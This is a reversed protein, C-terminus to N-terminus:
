QIGGVSKPDFFEKQYPIAKSVGKNQPVYVANLNEDIPFKYKELNQKNYM